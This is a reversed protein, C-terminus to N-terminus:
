KFYIRVVLNAYVQMKNDRSDDTKETFKNKRDMHYLFLFEGGMHVYKSFIYECGIVPSFTYGNSGNEWENNNEYERISLVNNLGVIGGFSLNLYQFNKLYYLGCGILYYTLHTKGTNEERLAYM